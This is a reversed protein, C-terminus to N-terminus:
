EEEESKLFKKNLSYTQKDKRILINYTEFEKIITMLKDLPIRFKFRLCFRVKSYTICNDMDCYDKFGKALSNYLEPTKEM